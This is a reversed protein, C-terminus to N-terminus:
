NVGSAAPKGSKESSCCSDGAATAPLEATAISGVDVKAETKGSTACSGADSKTEANATTACSGGDKSKEAGAAPSTACSGAHSKEGNAPQTSACASEGTTKASAAVPGTVATDPAGPQESPNTEPAPVLLIDNM